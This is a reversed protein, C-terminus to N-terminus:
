AKKIALTLLNQAFHVKQWPWSLKFNKLKYRVNDM